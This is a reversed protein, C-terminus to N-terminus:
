ARSRRRDGQSSVRRRSASQRPAGPGPTSRVEGPRHRSCPKAAPSRTRNSMVSEGPVQRVSVSRRATTACRSLGYRLVALDTPPADSGLLGQKLGVTLDLISGGLRTTRMRTSVDPSSLESVNGLVDYLGLTPRSRRAWPIRQEALRTLCGPTSSAGQRITAGPTSGDTPFSRRSISPSRLCGSDTPRPTWTCPPCSGNCPMRRRLRRAVCSVGRRGNGVSPTDAQEPEGYKAVYDEPFHFQIPRFKVAKKYVTKCEPDAYYVPKRGTLESLANCWVAMDYATIDTVPEDSGHAQPPEAPGAVPDFGWYDMSGMDGDYDTEYGHAVGWDRVQKWLAFTTEHRAMEVQTGPVPVLDLEVAPEAPTETARTTEGKQITWAPVDEAIEAM